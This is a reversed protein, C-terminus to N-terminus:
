GFIKRFLARMTQAQARKAEQVIQERASRPDERHLDLLTAKCAMALAAGKGSLDMSDGAKLLYDRSDGHQTVWIEGSRVQVSDGELAEIKLVAGQDIEFERTGM